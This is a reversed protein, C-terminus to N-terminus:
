IALKDVGKTLLMFIKRLPLGDFVMSAIISTDKIPNYRCIQTANNRGLVNALKLVNHLRGDEVDELAVVKSDTGAHM